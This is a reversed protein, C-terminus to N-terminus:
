AILGSSIRQRTALLREYESYSLLRPWTVSGAGSFASRPLCPPDFTDASTNLFEVRV